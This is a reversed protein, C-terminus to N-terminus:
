LNPKDERSQFWYLDQNHIERRVSLLFCHSTCQLCHGGYEDTNEAYCKAQCVCDRLLWLLSRLRGTWGGFSVHRRCTTGFPLVDHIPQARTLFYHELHGIQHGGP